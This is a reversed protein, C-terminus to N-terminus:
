AQGSFNGEDKRGIGAVCVGSSHAEEALSAVDRAVIHLCGGVGVM